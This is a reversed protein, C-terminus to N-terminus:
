VAITRGAPSRDARLLEAGASTGVGRSVDSADARAAVEGREAPGVLQM